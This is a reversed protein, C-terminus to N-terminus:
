EPERAIAAATRLHIGATQFARRQERQEDKVGRVESVLSELVHIQADARVEDRWVLFGCGALAALAFITVLVNPRAAAQLAASAKDITEPIAEAM